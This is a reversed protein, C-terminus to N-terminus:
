RDFGSSAWFISDKLLLKTEKYLNKDFDCYPVPKIGLDKCMNCYYGYYRQKYMKIYTEMIKSKSKLKFITV